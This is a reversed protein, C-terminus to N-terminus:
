QSDARSKEGLYGGHHRAAFDAASFRLEEMLVLALADSLAIMATTSATPTLGLPCPEEIDGLELVIDSLEGLPSEASACMGIVCYIGLHKCFRTTEIVERTKGSNSYALLIDQDSVVGIDGHSADGPHIFVSPTGTTCFTSAAKRAVYGAKGIGTTFLKGKCSLISQIAKEVSDGVTINEIARAEAQLVRKVRDIM